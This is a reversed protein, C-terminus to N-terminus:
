LGYRSVIWAVTLMTSVWIIAIVANENMDNVMM